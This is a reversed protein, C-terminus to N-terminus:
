ETSGDSIFSGVAILSSPPAGGSLLALLLALTVVMRAGHALTPRVKPLSWM